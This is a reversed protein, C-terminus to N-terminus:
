VEHLVVISIADAWSLFDAMRWSSMYETIDKYGRDFDDTVVLGRHRKKITSRAEQTLFKSHPGM